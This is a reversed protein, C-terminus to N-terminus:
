QSICHYRSYICFFVFFYARLFGLLTAPRPWFVAHLMFSLNHQIFPCHVASYITPPPLPHIHEHRGILVYISPIYQTLRPKEFDRPTQSIHKWHQLNHPFAKLYLVKTYFSRNRRTKAELNRKIDQCIEARKGRIGNGRDTHWNQKILIM